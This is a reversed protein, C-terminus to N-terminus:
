LKKYVYRWIYSTNDSLTSKLKTELLFGDTRAIDVGESRLVKPYNQNNSTFNANLETIGNFSVVDENNELVRRFAFNVFILNSTYLPNIKNSYIYTDVGKVNSAQRYYTNNLVNGIGGLTVTDNNVFTPQTPLNYDKFVFRRMIKGGFYTYNSANIYKDIRGNSYIRENVSDKILKKNSDYYYFTNISDIFGPLSSVLLSATPQMDSGNYFYTNTYQYQDTIGAGRSPAFFYQSIIRTVRKLDDHTYTSLVSDYATNNYTVKLSTALQTSDVAAPPPNPIDDKKGCGVVSIIAFLLVIRFTAKM